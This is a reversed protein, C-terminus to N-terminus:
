AQPRDQIASLAKHNKTTIRSCPSWGLAIVWVEIRSCPNLELHDGEPDGLPGQLEKHHLQMSGIRDGECSLRPSAALAPLGQAKCVKSTIRSRPIRGSRPPLFIERASKIEHSSQTLLVTSNFIHLELNAHM